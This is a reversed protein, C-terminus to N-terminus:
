LIMEWFELAPKCAILGITRLLHAVLSRERQPDSKEMDLVLELM